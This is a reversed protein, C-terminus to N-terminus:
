RSALAFNALARLKHPAVPKLMLQFRHARAETDLDTMVSGTVM